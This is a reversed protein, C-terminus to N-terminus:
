AKKFANTLLQKLIKFIIKYLSAKSITLLCQTQNRCCDMVANNCLLNYYRTLLPEEANKLLKSKDSNMFLHPRQSLSDEELISFLRPWKVQVRECPCMATITFQLCCILDSCGNLMSGPKQNPEHPDSIGASLCEWQTPWWRQSSWGIILSCCSEVKLILQLLHHETGGAGKQILINDKIRFGNAVKRCMSCYFYVNIKTLIPYFLVEFSKSISTTIQINWKNEEKMKNNHNQDHSSRRVFVPYAWDFRLNKLSSIDNRKCAETPNQFM